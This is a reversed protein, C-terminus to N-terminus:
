LSIWDTWNERDFAVLGAGYQEYLNRDDITVAAGDVDAVGEVLIYRWAVARRSDSDPDSDFVEIQIVEAVTRATVYPATLIAPEVVRIQPVYDSAQQAAAAGALLLLTMIIAQMTKM